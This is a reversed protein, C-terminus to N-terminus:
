QVYHIPTRSPSLEIDQIKQQSIIKVFRSYKSKFKDLKVCSSTSRAVRKGSTRLMMVDMSIDKWYNTVCHIYSKGNETERHYVESSDPWPLDSRSFWSTAAFSKSGPNEHSSFYSWFMSTCCHQIASKSKMIEHNLFFSKTAKEIGMKPQSRRRQQDEM